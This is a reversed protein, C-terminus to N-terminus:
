CIGDLEEEDSSTFQSMLDYPDCKVEQSYNDDGDQQVQPVFNNAPWPCTNAPLSLLQPAAVFNGNLHLQSNFQQWGNENSVTQQQTMALFNNNNSVM